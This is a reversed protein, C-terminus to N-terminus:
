LVVVVVIVVNHYLISAVRWPSFSSGLVKRFFGVVSGDLLALRTLPM